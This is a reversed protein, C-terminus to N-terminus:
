LSQSFCTFQVFSGRICITPFLEANASEKMGLISGGEDVEYCVTRVRM